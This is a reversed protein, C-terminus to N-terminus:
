KYNIIEKEIKEKESNGKVYEIIALAFDKAAAVSRGTIINEDVVVAEDLYIAGNDILEDKLSTFVTSKKLKLIRLKALITPSACIAAILKKKSTFDLLSVLLEPLDGYNKVGPGGPMFIGDYEELNIESFKKEAIIKIDHSGTVILDNNPTILDIQINARRLLDVVFLAEVEEVGNVLITAIKM